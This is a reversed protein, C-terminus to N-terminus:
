QFMYLKDNAGVIIKGNEEIPTTWHIVNDMSVGGGNFVNAGTLGDWGTLQNSGEAGAIWVIPNSGAADTTTVIPSGAGGSSACWATTFSPTGTTAMKIAILDGGAGPCNTGNGDARMVVFTGSTTTYAAAGGRINVGNPHPGAVLDSYVGEGTIGNGKGVGGLNSRDLVHVVGSKGFALVLASPTTGPVDLVLPGAGTLDTDNGDLSSWNSPSFFDTTKSSDFASGNHFRLVAESQFQAWTSGSGGTANGSVSFMDVGDSALGTVCWMGGGQAATAYGTATSPSAVPVAIVWGNYNGCDGDQGGFAVYLIGNLLALGGRQNQPGANFPTGGASKITSVDIPWGSVTSGDDISLAYIFYTNIGSGSGTAAALYMTRSSLDIYPASTIGLPQINGPCQGTGAPTLLPTKHWVATGTTEDFAYVDNGDDAVYFTGKGGVGNVVYLTQGWFPNAISTNFTSNLTLAKAHATTMAPDIYHGDRSPNKHYEVVSAGVDPAPGTDPPPATDPPPTGDPGTSSDGKPHGGDGAVGTDRVTGDPGTTGDAGAENPNPVSNLGIIASCGQSLLVVTVFFAGGWGLQRSREM